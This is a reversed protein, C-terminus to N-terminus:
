LYIRKESLLSFVMKASKEPTISTVRYAPGWFRTETRTYLAVAHITTAIAPSVNTVPALVEIVTIFTQGRTFDITAISNKRPLENHDPGDM